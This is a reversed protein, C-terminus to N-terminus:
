GQRHDRLYLFSQREHAMLDWFSRYRTAGPIWHAFFWAEWEGEPTAIQPNLLYIATGATERDSIELTSQLYESRMAGEASGGEGYDLYEEDPVPDPERGDYREGDQWADITDQNRVAFWEIEETSLVAPIFHGTARWGNTYALFARYSPPLAAGLREELAALTEESAGPYGLWGSAIVEPALQEHIEEDALLEANWATMLGPWDFTAM